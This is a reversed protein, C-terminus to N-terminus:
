NDDDSSDVFTKKKRRKKEPPEEVVRLSSRTRGAENGEGEEEEDPRREKQEEERAEGVQMDEGGVDEAAALPNMATAMIISVSYVQSTLVFQIPAGRTTFMFTLEARELGEGVSLLARLEKTNFILEQLEPSHFHTTDFAELPTYIDSRCM